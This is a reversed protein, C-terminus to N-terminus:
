SSPWSAPVIVKDIIHIVGNSAKIDTETVTATNITVGSDTDGTKMDVNLQSGALNGVSETETTIDTSLVKGPVVHYKLLEVLKEKNDPELWQEVTGAPLTEFAEDSPAFVTFPGDGKLTDDLEAAELAAILTDFNGTMSATEVIDKKYGGAMAATSLGLAAAIGILKKMTNELKKTQHNRRM